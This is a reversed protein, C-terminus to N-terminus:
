VSFFLRSRGAALIRSDAKCISDPPISQGSEHLKHGFFFAVGHPFVHFAVQFAIFLQSLKELPTGPTYSLHRSTLWASLREPSGHVTSGNGGVTLHHLEELTTFGEM